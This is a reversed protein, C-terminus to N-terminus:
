APKKRDRGDAMETLNKGTMARNFSLWRWHKVRMGRLRGM